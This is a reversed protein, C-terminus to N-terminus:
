NSMYLAFVNESPAKLRDAAKIKKTKKCIKYSCCVDEAFGSSAFNSLGQRIGDSSVYFSNDCTVFGFLNATDLRWRSSMSLYKCLTSRENNSLPVTFGRQVTKLLTDAPIKNSSFWKYNDGVGTVLASFCSRTIYVEHSDYYMRVNPFHFDRVLKIPHRDTMFIEVPRMTATGYIAYRYSSITLIKRIHLSGLGKRKANLRMRIYIQMVYSDFIARDKTHIALDIDSLVNYAAAAKADAPAIPPLRQRFLNDEEDKATARAREEETLSYYGPYYYELFGMFEADAGEYRLVECWKKKEQLKNGRFNEELPSTAVCPALISGTVCCNFSRLDIGEFLNNSVLDFRHQFEKMDLIRRPGLLVFPALQALTIGPTDGKLLPLYPHHDIHIGKADANNMNTIPIMPMAHAEALTFVYRHTNRIADQSTIEEHRLVYMAYTLAYIALNISEADGNAFVDRLFAAVTPVKIIHCTYPSTMCRAMTYLALKRMGIQTLCNVLQLPKDVCSYLHEGLLAWDHYNTVFHRQTEEEQAHMPIQKEKEVKVKEEGADTEVKVSGGDAKEDTKKANRIEYEKAFNTAAADNWVSSTISTYPFTRKELLCCLFDKKEVLKKWERTGISIESALSKLKDCLEPIMYRGYNKYQKEGTEIGEILIRFLDLTNKDKIEALLNEDYARQDAM